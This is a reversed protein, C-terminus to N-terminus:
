SCISSRLQHEIRRDLVEKDECDTTSTKNDPFSIFIIHKAQRKGNLRELCKRMRNSCANRPLSFNNLVSAQVILM